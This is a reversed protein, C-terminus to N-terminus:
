AGERLLEELLRGQEAHLHRLRRLIKQKRQRERTADKSNRTSPEQVLHPAVEVERGFWGPELGLVRALATLNQARPEDRGTEWRSVTQKSVKAADALQAQTWKRRNREARIIAGHDTM